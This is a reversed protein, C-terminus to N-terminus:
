FLWFTALFLKETNILPNDRLRDGVSFLMFFAFDGRQCKRMASHKFPKSFDTTYQRYFSGTGITRFQGDKLCRLPFDGRFSHLSLLVSFTQRLCLTRLGLNGDIISYRCDGFRNGRGDAFLEQWPVVWAVCVCRFFLPKQTPTPNLADRNTALQLSILHFDQEYVWFNRISEPTQLM